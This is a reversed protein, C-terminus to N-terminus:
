KNWSCALTSCGADSIDEVAKARQAEAIGRNAFIEGKVREIELQQMIDQRQKAESEAQQKQQEYQEIQKLLEPKGAIPAAKMLMSMMFPPVPQKLRMLLDVLQVLDAYFM